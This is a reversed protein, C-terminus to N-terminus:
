SCFHRKCYSFFKRDRRIGQGPHQDSKYINVESSVDAEGQPIDEEMKENEGFGAIYLPPLDGM